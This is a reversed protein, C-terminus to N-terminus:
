PHRYFPQLLKDWNAAENKFQDVPPKAEAPLFDREKFSKTREDFEARIKKMEEPKTLLDLGTSALIKTGNLMFKYGISMGSVAVIGWHHGPVGELQVALNLRLVPAAWSANGTDDSSLSIEGKERFPSIKTNIGVEQAKMERQIKKAYDVEEPSFTPVGVLELNNHVLKAGSVLSLINYCYVQPEYSMQTDTMLGAGKAINIAWDYIKAAEGIDPHRFYFWNEAYDPVTNPQVGGRTIVYHVRAESPIHERMFNIGVDMLEVADLSSRGEHPRAAHATKGKFGFKAKLVAMNSDTSGKNETGPHWSLIVDAVKFVGKRHMFTKASANEEAPTGFVIVQGPINNKEM